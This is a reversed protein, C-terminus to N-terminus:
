GHAHRNGQQRHRRPRGIGCCDCKGIEPVLARCHRHFGQTQETHQVAIP